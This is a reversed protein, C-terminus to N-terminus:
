VERPTYQYVHSARAARKGRAQRPAIRLIGQTHHVCPAIFDVGSKTMIRVYQGCNVCLCLMYCDGSDNIRDGWTHHGFLCKLQEKSM